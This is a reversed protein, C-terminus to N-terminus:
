GGAPSTARTRSCRRWRRTTARSPLAFFREAAAWQGAALAEVPEAAQGQITVASSIGFGFTRRSLVTRLPWVMCSLCSRPYSKKVHRRQNFAQATRHGQPGARNNQGARWLSDTKARVGGTQIFAPSVTTTSTSFNAPQFDLARRILVDANTYDLLRMGKSPERM